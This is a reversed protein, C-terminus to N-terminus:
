SSIWAYGAECSKSFGAYWGHADPNDDDHEIQQAYKPQLENPRAPQVNILHQQPPQQPPQFNEPAKSTSAGNVSMTYNNQFKQNLPPFDFIQIFPHPPNAPNLHHLLCLLQVEGCHFGRKM